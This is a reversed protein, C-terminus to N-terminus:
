GALMFSSAERGNRSLNTNSTLSAAPLFYHEHRVAHANANVLDPGGGAPSVARFGVLAAGCGAALALQLLLGLVRRSTKRFPHSRM